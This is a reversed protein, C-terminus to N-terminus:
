TREFNEVMDVCLALGAAIMNKKVKTLGKEMLINGHYENGEVIRREYALKGKISPNKCLDDLKERLLIAAGVKFQFEGNVKTQKRITNLADENDFWNISLEFYNDDRQINDDFTNFLISTPYGDELFSKNPIGRILKDPYEMNLIRWYM